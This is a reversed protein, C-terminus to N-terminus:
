EYNNNKFINKMNKWSIKENDSEEFQNTIIWINCAVSLILAIIYIIIIATKSPEVSLYNFEDFKRRQFRGLNNNLYDYLDNWTKETLVPYNPSKIKITTDVFQTSITKIKSKLITKAINSSILPLQKKVVTDKYQYLDIIKDRVDITLENSLSWSFAHSWQIQNDKVGICLVLENMNGKVWYNEQYNAISRPKDNFVLVWLRMENSAGFKGNLKRFNEQINEPIKDGLITPYGFGENYKPYNFLKLSDAQKKTVISINFVTLDSAKIKNKYSHVSVYAKRTSDTGNWLTQYVYSINGVRKGEFKTGRSGSCGDNPAYNDHSNYAVRNTKFQKILEDYQKESINLNEKINTVAWWKTGIDVQHSCDYYHTTCTESKGTGTCTTYSCTQTQWYNYPEQEYIEVISSGWYETFHVTSYDIILKSIIIMILVSGIPIFFEWWTFERKEYLYFGLTVLIPVLLAFYYIGSM